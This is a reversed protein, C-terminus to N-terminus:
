QRLSHSSAIRTLLLVQFLILPATMHDIHLYCPHVYKVLLRLYTRINRLYKFTESSDILTVNRLPLPCSNRRTSWLLPMFPSSTDTKEETSMRHRNVQMPETEDRMVPHISHSLSHRLVRRSRMLNDIQIALDVFQEDQCALEAQLEHTLGKRFFTKLMDSVWTTQAALTHFAASERGQALKLFQEGAGKGDNPHDFVEHFSRMFTENSSFATGDERWVATIWDLTRGTLLSCVFVIKSTETPYLAPQQNLFLSCQLCFGKYKTPEGDFREPFFLQPSVPSPTEAAHINASIM